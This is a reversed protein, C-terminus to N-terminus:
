EVNTFTIREVYFRFAVCFHFLHTPKKPFIYKMQWKYLISYVLSNLAFINKEQWPNQLEATYFALIKYWENDPDWHTEITSYYEISYYRCLRTAGRACPFITKCQHVPTFVPFNANGPFCFQTKNRSSELDM